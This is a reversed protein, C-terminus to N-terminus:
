RAWIQPTFEWHGNGTRTATDSSSNGTTSPSGGTTTIIHKFDRDYLFQWHRELWHFGIPPPHRKPLPLKRTILLTCLHLLFPDKSFCEVDGWGIQICQM